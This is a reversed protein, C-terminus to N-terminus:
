GTPNHLSVIPNSEAIYGQTMYLLYLEILKKLKALNPISLVKPQRSIVQIGHTLFDVHWAASPLRM